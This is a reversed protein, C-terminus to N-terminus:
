NGQLVNWAIFKGHLKEPCVMVISVDSICPWTWGQTPNSHEHFSELGSPKSKGCLGITRTQPWL